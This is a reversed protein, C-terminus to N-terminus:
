EESINNQSQTMKNNYAYKNNELRNLELVGSVYQM